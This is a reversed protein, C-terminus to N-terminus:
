TGVHNSEKQQPPREAVLVLEEGVAAFREGFQEVIRFLRGERDNAPRSRSSAPADDGRAIAKSQAWIGPASYAHSFIRRVIFGAQRAAAALTRPSFVFLHRPTELGRWHRGFRRHGLSDANPTAAVLLGGPELMHLCARLTAVPDPLHEIVHAMTIADLAATGHLHAAFDGHLVDLGFRTRAVQAALPDPEYGIVNWGLKRMAALYRGSGCGYDLLRGRRERPLWLITRGVRDIFVRRAALLRAPLSRPEPPYIDGYGFAERLVTRRVLKRLGPGDLDDDRADTAHTHYATYLKGLDEAAPMPDLWLLACRADRCQRFGWEGPVGFLRDVLHAYRVDSDSGCLRCRTVSTARIRQEPANM